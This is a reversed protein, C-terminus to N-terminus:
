SCISQGWNQTPQITIGQIEYDPFLQYEQVPVYKFVAISSQWKPPLVNDCVVRDLMDKTVCIRKWPIDQSRAAKTLAGIFHSEDVM